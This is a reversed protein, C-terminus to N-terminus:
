NEPNENRRVLPHLQNHTLSPIALSTSTAVGELDHQYDSIAQSFFEENFTNQDLRQEIGRPINKIIKPPHNSESKVYIPRDRSNRYPKFINKELDFTDYLFNVTKLNICNNIKLGHEAFAIIIKQKLKEPLQWYTM